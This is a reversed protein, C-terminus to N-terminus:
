GEDGRLDGQRLGRKLMQREVYDIFQGKKMQWHPALLADSATDTQLRMIPIEPPMLRIADIVAEAYDHEDLLPFPKALYAAGLETNRVVHLNHFKIGAIPLQSLKVATLHYDSETEGPLGFIVHVACQIGAAHLREIADRSCAWDHGRNVRKLTRDHVTQVGLEVWLDTESALTKLGDVTDPDLCDPRTGIVFADFPTHALIRAYTDRLEGASAFTGSFAQCYGMFRKAGYRQRAYALAMDVQEEWGDARLTQQSRGGHEACFSCGGSGDTERNPCGFGLDIPIRQLQEGYRDRMFQRYTYYPTSYMGIEEIM